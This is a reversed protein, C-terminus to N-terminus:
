EKTRKYNHPSRKYKINRRRMNKPKEQPSVEYFYSLPKEFLEELDGLYLYVM